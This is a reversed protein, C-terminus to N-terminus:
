EENENEELKELENINIEENVLDDRAPMPAEEVNETNELEEKEEEDKQNLIDDIVIQKNEDVKYKPLDPLDELSNMDFLKLFMNTVKYMSPRGPADLKGSSEILGYEILKYITGDSSVGRIAEIEARTINPNYAIISVVEMAAPSLQPKARKDFIAYLYEYFEKKTALQYEGNISILEFGRRKDNAYEDQMEQMLNVAEDKEIELAAMITSIQVEKGSAFLISEIIAKKEEKEM